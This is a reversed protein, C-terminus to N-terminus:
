SVIQGPAVAKPAEGGAAKSQGRQALIFLAIGVTISADAVNFVPRFFLFHEGGWFPLWQPLRGELLPFYFMDVVAGHLWPAYGGEAPLLRALEYPTSASFLVGYVTSDIINGLAGAFILAMCLVMTRPAGQRVLQKLYWGIGALAVLRFLTLLLKGESGGLELGFAMGRNEIFHLYGWSGFLEISSDYYMNLKVWVKLAQDALLVLLAILLARKL